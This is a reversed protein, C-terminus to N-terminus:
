KKYIKILRKNESVLSIKILVLRKGYNKISPLIIDAWEILTIGDAELFEDFGLALFDNEKKIRYLDFHFVPCKESIYSNLYSFTPSNVLDKEIGLGECVGKIFTTKGAGLDGIFAVIDNKNLSASLEKGSFHTEEASSTTKKEFVDEEFVGNQNELTDFIIGDM